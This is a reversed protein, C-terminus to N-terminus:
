NKTPRQRQRVTPVSAAPAALAADVARRIFASRSPCTKDGDLRMRAIRQDIEDVQDFTLSVGITQVNSM